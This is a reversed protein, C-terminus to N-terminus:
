VSRGDPVNDNLPSGMIIQCFFIFLSKKMKYLSSQGVFSMFPCFNLVASQLKVFFFQKWQIKDADLEPSINQVFRWILRSALDM